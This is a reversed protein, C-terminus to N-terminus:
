QDAMERLHQAENGSPWLQRRLGLWRADDIQPAEIRM